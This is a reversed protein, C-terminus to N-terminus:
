ALKQVWGASSSSAGSGRVQEWKARAQRSWEGSARQNRSQEQLQQFMNARARVSNSRTLGSSSTTATGTATATSSTTASGSATDDGLSQIASDEELGSMDFIHQTDNGVSLTLQESLNVSSDNVLSSSNGPAAGQGALHFVRPSQLPQTASRVLRFSAGSGSNTSSSLLLPAPVHSLPQGTIPSILGSHSAQNQRIDLPKTPKFASTASIDFPASNAKFSFSSLTLNPNCVHELPSEPAFVVIFQLVQAPQIVFAHPKWIQFKWQAAERWQRHTDQCDM